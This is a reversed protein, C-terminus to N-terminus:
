VSSNWFLLIFFSDRRNVFYVTGGGFLPLFSIITLLLVSGVSALCGLTLSKIRKM